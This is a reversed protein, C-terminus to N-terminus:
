ENAKKEKDAKPIEFGKKFAQDSFALKLQEEAKAAAVKGKCNNCCFAVKVGAIEIATAPDLDRGTLPCHVEKAQGTVVLQHNAKAAFKAKNKTFAQPCKDCCFYLKAGKYVLSQAEDIAEGSVPCTAKELKKKADAKEDASIVSGAFLLCVVVAFLSLRKM